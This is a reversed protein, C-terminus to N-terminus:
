QKMREIEDRVLREVMGPLNDELWAQLMPRLMERMMDELTGAEGTLITHALSTKSASRFHLRTLEIPYSWIAAIRSHRSVGPNAANAGIFLNAVRSM